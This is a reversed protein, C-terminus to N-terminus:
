DVPGESWDSRCLLHLACRHCVCCDDVCHSVAGSIVLSMSNSERMRQLDFDHVASASASPANGSTAASDMHYGKEKAEAALGDHGRKAYMRLALCVQVVGLHFSRVGLHTSMPGVDALVGYTLIRSCRLKNTAYM